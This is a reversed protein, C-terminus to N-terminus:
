QGRVERWVFEPVGDLIADLRHLKQDIDAPQHEGNRVAIASDRDFRWGMDPWQQVLEMMRPHLVDSAFKRNECTVVFARNFDESELEIDRNTIRGFFGSILGQPTVSLNPVTVGLNVSVVSYHHTETRRDKGTGSTTKYLYDFAVIPRGDYHGLLVNYARRGHGLGFPAGSFRDVLGPDEQVYTWGRSAAYAAMAERRKKAALYGLYGVVVAFAVFLVFIVVFFGGSV